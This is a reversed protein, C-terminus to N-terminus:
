HAAAPLGYLRCLLRLMEEVKPDLLSYYITQGERRAAVLGELRLRALQQSVVAQRAALLNELESVSHPGRLLHCLIALRGDHGLAKLFNAAPEAASVLGDLGDPLAAAEPLAEADFERRTQALTM